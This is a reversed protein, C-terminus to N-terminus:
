LPRWGLPEVVRKCWWLNGTWVANGATGDAYLVEVYIFVAPREAVPDHWTGRQPNEDNFDPPIQIKLLM